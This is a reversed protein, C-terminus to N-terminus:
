DTSDNLIQQLEEDSEAFEREMETKGFEVARRSLKLSEEFWARNATLDKLAGLKTLQVEFSPDLGEM